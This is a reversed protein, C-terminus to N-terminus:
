EDANDNTDDNALLAQFRTALRERRAATWWRLLRKHSTALNRRERRELAALGTILDVEDNKDPWDALTILAARHDNVDGLKEQLREVLPYVTSRFQEPFAGALLEMAYRLRKGEIRFAHLAALDNMDAASAAFFDDVVPRLARRAFQTFTPQNLRALSGRPRVREVLSEARGAFDKRSLKECVERVPRRRDSRLREASVLLADYRGGRHTAALSRLREVFVDLDRAEGAAQRTRKLQKRLWLARRQSTLEAFVELAATARRTAVRLQHVITLDDVPAVSATPLLRVVTRLRGDLADRAVLNVPQDPTAVKLWKGTQVTAM